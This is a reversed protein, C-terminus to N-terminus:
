VYNNILQELKGQAQLIFEAAERVAGGGGPSKAQWGANDVVIHNADAVTMGLGELNLGALGGPRVEDTSVTDAADLNNTIYFVPGVGPAVRQLELVGGNPLERRVPIGARRAYDQALVRNNQDRQKLKASLELLEAKRTALAIDSQAIAEFGFGLVIIVVVLKLLRMNMM